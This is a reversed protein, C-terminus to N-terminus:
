RIKPKIFRGTATSALKGRANVIQGRLLTYLVSGRIKRGVYPSHKHRYLLGDSTIEREEDPAILVLDADAGPTLSGKRDAIAFREAVNRSTVRALLERELGADVLLPLLHQCSSIGGWVEFFDEREKMNWPAPSHDSGISDVNGAVLESWLEQQEHKDRLPPACKAVAGLRVMDNDTLLLYHPCTECTVNVGKRKAAAVLHVGSGCSVHVIHLACGTEGALDIACRIADLEAEVPRSEIFDRVSTGSSRRPRDFEAHVAVPLKLKSACLMARKLTQVDVSPFDDIGSRAMFAKFGIVGREALTELQDLNDPVIGGWLGFDVLSQAEAAARKADFSPGDITPPHANLPMEIYTTTGNAAAARSGTYFGEWDARGPENFHVHADIVGPLMQLGRADLEERASASEFGVIKGDAIGIEPIPKAGRILLDLEPM